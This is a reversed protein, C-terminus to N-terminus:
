PIFMMPDPSSFSAPELSSIMRVLIVELMKLLTSSPASIVATMWDEEAVVTMTTPSTLEPMRLSSRAMPMMMPALMPVVMVAWIRARPSMLEELKKRCSTLGVARAGIIAAMPMTKKMNKCPLLCFFRPWIRIPKPMRKMPICDISFAM